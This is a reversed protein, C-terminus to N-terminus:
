AVPFEIGVMNEYDIKQQQKKRNIEASSVKNTQATKPVYQNPRKSHSLIKNMLIANRREIDRLKDNSFSKNTKSTTSKAILSKLMLEIDSDSECDLDFSDNSYQSGEGSEEEENENLNKAFNKNVDHASRAANMRNKADPLVIKVATRSKFSSM